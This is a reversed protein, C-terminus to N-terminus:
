CGGWHYDVSDDDDTVMSFLLASAYFASVLRSGLRGARGVQEAVAAAATHSTTTAGIAPRM